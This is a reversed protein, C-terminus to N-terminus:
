RQAREETPRVLRLETLTTLLQATEDASLTPSTATLAARDIIAGTALQSLWMCARVFADSMEVRATTTSGAGPEHVHIVVRSTTTVPDRSEVGFSAQGRRVLPAQSSQNTHAIAGRRPLLDDLALRQTAAHLRACLDSAESEVKADHGELSWDYTPERWAEDRLLENRLAGLFADARTLPSIQVHLSLSDCDSSTEHWYGRPVHLVSGPLLETDTAYEPMARPPEDHAYIRLQAPAVEGTAWTVVPNKAFTNPAVRWV